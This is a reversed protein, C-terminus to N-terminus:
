VEEYDVDWIPYNHAEDLVGLQIEKDCNKCTICDCDFSHRKYIMKDIWSMWNCKKARLVKRKVDDRTFILNASCYPCSMSWKSARRIKM